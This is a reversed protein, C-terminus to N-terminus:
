PPMLPHRLPRGSPRAGRRGATPCQHPRVARDTRRLAGPDDVALISHM